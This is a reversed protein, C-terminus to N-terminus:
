KGNVKHLKQKVDEQVAQVQQVLDSVAVSFGLLKSLKVLDLAHNPVNMCVFSFPSRGRRQKPLGRKFYACCQIRNVVESHRDTLPHVTSSFNLFSDFMRCLTIWFHSLFRTDLDLFDFMRM